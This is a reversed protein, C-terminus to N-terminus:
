STAHILSVILVTVRCLGGRWTKRSRRAPNVTAGIKNPSSLNKLQITSQGFYSAGQILSM